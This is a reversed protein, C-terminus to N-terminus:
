PAEIKDALARLAKAVDSRRIWAAEDVAPTTTQAAQLAHLFLDHYGAILTAKDTGNIIRRAGVPDDTNPSFFDLLKRGTFDGDRMGVFMVQAALSPELARDENPAMIDVGLKSGMKRYNYDWTLQVYGRGFYPWYRKGRLYSDSGYEKVPQMTAATEHYTTALAYALWRLDPWRYDREFVDLLANLGEVQEQKLAGGFPSVRVADFFTKRDIM